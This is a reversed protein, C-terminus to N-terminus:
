MRNKLLSVRLLYCGYRTCKRYGSSDYIDECVSRMCFTVLLMYWKRIPSCVTVIKDVLICPTIRTNFLYKVFTGCGQDNQCLEQFKSHFM